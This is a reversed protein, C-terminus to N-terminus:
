YMLELGVHSYNDEFVLKGKKFVKISATSDLSEFVELDMIGKKRPGILTTHTNSKAIINVRTSGKKITLSYKDDIKKVKIRSLNFSGFREEKGQYNLILFFGKVKFFLVPVLGVSFSVKSKEESHNSQLWIWKSPFNTGYTKEMYGIANCKKGNMTYIVDSELYLVEQFCELPAKSLFGMASNTKQYENLRQHNSQDISIEYGSENFYIMDESISNQKIHVKNSERDFKFESSDYRYYFSKNISADYFQIFSHSDNVDKTIAFILAYSHKSEKDTWKFYWGEFYNKQKKNEYKFLNM